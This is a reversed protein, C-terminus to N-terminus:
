GAAAAGAKHRLWIRLPRWAGPPLSSPVLMMSRTRAAAGAREGVVPELTMWVAWGFDVAGPRVRYAVEAEGESLTAGGDAALTIVRGARDREGRLAHALSRALLGGLFVAGGALAWGGDDGVRGTLVHFLALAAAGHALLVSAMVGRSPRLELRLPYHM